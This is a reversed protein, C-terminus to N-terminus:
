VRPCSTRSAGSGRDVALMQSHGAVVDERRRVSVSAKVPKFPRVRLAWEDGEDKQCRDERIRVIARVVERVDRVSGRTRRSGAGTARHRLQDGRAHPQSSESARPGQSDSTVRLVAIVYEGSKMRLKALFWLSWFLELPILFRAVWRNSSCILFGMEKGTRLGRAV